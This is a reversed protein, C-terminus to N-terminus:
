ELRRSSGQPLRRNGKDKDKAKIKIGAHRTIIKSVALLAERERERKTKIRMIVLIKEDAKTGKGITSVL